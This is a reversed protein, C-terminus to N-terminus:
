RTSRKYERAYQPQDTVVTLRPDDIPEGAILSIPIVGAWVPLDYDEENDLPPGSRVKASAETLPLSLVTTKKMEQESPQRVDEWRGPIM